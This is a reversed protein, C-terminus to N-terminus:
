PSLPSDPKKERLPPLGGTQALTPNLKRPERPHHQRHKRHRPRPRFILFFILSALAVVLIALTMILFDFWEPLPGTIALFIDCPNM